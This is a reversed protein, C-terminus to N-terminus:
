PARGAATRGPVNYLCIPFDPTAQAVTEFHKLLGSQTPKNYYPTVQLSADAGADKAFRTLELAEETSNGGTGAIVQCRGNVTEVVAKILSKHEEFNLTPSEGTTGAPVLGSVGAEIQEEILDKLAPYCIGQNEFPTVLATYCGSLDM